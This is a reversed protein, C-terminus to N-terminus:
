RCHETAQVSDSELEATAEM